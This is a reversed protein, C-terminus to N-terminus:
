MGAMLEHTIADLETIDEVGKDGFLGALESLKKKVPVILIGARTSIIEIKSNEEMGKEERIDKPIVVEGRSGMNKVAIKM